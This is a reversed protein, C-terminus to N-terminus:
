IIDNEAGAGGVDGATNAGFVRIQDNNDANDNSILTEMSRVALVGDPLNAGFLGSNHFESNTAVNLDGQTTLYVYDLARGINSTDTITLRDRDVSDGAVGAAQDNGEITVGTIPVFASSGISNGGGTINLNFQDNGDFGQFVNNASLANGAINVTDDGER